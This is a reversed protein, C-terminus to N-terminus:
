KKRFLKEYWEFTEKIAAGFEVENKWGLEKKIKSYDLYQNPIENKAINLIKTKIQRGTVNEIKELLDLVSYVNESGFNFIEGKIKEINKALLVCGRAVDKVYVYERVLKGDSRIELTEDLIIAKMAGPIIRNFNLDGPGFMNGCRAIVVPLKYTKYYMQAILDTCSKSCDYPHSGKLAYSEKYPLNEHVGYAKDSSFVIIGKVRKCHRAAELVNVTGMINTSLTEYPNIYAIPVIPQAALHFIYDIEYKSIVDFVREKDKLDCIAMCVKENLKKLMFYQKPNIARYTVIVNAGEELLTEVVHSGAFGIGGTVLVNAGKMREGASKVLM